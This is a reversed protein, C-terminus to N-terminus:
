GIGGAEGNGQVGTIGVTVDGVDATTITETEQVATPAPEPIGLAARAAVGVPGFAADDPLRSAIDHCVAAVHAFAEDPLAGLADLLQQREM